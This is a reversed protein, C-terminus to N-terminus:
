ESDESETEEIDPEYEGDELGQLVSDFEDKIKTFTRPLSIVTEDELLSEMRNRVDNLDDLLKKQKSNLLM